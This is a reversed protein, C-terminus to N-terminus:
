TTVYSNSFDFDIDEFSIWSPLHNHLETVSGKDLIHSLRQELAVAPFCHYNLNSSSSTIQILYLLKVM